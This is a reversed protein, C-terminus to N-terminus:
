GVLAASAGGLGPVLRLASARPQEVCSAAALGARRRACTACSRLLSRREAAHTSSRDSSLVRLRHPADREAHTGTLLDPGLRLTATPLLQCRPSAVSLIDTDSLIETRLCRSVTRLGFAGQGTPAGYWGQRHAAEAGLKSRRGAGERM